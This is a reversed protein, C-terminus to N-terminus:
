EEIFDVFFFKLKYQNASSLLVCYPFKFFENRKM